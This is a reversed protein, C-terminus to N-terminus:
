VKTRSKRTRSKDNNRKYLEEKLKANEKELEILCCEYADLGKKAEALWENHHTLLSEYQKCVREFDEKLKKNEDMLDANEQFLYRTM